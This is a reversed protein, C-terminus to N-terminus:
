GTLADLKEGMIDVQALVKINADEGIEQFSLVATTALAPEIIKRLYRRVDLSTLVVCAVQTPLKQKIAAIIQQEQAPELACYSGIASQRISERISNEIGDGVLLMPIWGEESTFRRRIHRRLSVRVYETLMVTDKEKSGWEVLTEFITRLDRISIQEEVLRQLIDTVKSIPLLRQLEKVLEAYRMEMADMLYRTEQVGLFEKGFHYIVKEVLYTVIEEGKYGTNPSLSPLDGALWYITQHNFILQEQRVQPLDIPQTLLIAAPDIETKFVPEQYLLIQLTNTEKTDVQLQIEPLPLGLKEFLQWRLNQLKDAITETMIQQGVIVLLPITGPTMERSAQETGNEVSPYIQGTGKKVKANRKMWYSCGFLMLALSGFVFWPFGPIIAFVLLISATLQLSMPQSLIQQVLDGALNNKKEGPVRTVILGATISILLSPIQAILGDGVSLIAYTNLAETASMNHQIVGIAIGGCINALIVIVSAIADGKVFKMAGDMAGYLQSEKQVLARQRKAETADIIGARMDGDISMQRGPMGDLSFRASVEAVRESGKTIVIFQVITIIAFIIIGVGLNGGVVFNGFTYVIEGADHQLLILRSTSITLALRYLTTILLMSPFASFDLPDRIYIAMMFLIISLGLNIAILVDILTTPLPLIMMFVSLMLMASLIIDQRGAIQSLWRTISM